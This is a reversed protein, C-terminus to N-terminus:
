SWPASDKRFLQYNKMQELFERYKISGSPEMVANATVRYKETDQPVDTGDVGGEVPKNFMCKLIIRGDVNTDEV